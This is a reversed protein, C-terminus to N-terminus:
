VLKRSKVCWIKKLTYIFVRHGLTAVCTGTRARDRICTRRRDRGSRDVTTMSKPNRLCLLRSSICWHQTHVVEYHQALKTCRHIFTDIDVVSPYRVINERSPCIVFTEIRQSEPHNRQIWGPRLPIEHPVHVDWECDRITQGLITAQNEIGNISDM